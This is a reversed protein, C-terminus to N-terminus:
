DNRFWGTLARREKQATLVEHPFLESRFVVLTGFEPTVTFLLESENKPSYVALQGGDAENWNPNLYLIFTLIRNQNNLSRDIHTKYFSGPQYCSLHLESRKLSLFLQTNIQNKFETLFESLETLSDPFENIWYISDSRISSNLNSQHNKGIKAPKFLDQKKIDEFWQDFTLALTRPLFQTNVYLGKNALDDIMNLWNFPVTFVAPM